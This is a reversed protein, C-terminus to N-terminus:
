EQYPIAALTCATASLVVAFQFVDHGLHWRRWHTRIALVLLVVAVATVVDFHTTTM